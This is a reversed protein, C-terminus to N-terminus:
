APETTLRLPFGQSRAMQMTYHAKSRAIDRSYIGAVASGEIHVKLMLAEAEQLPKRFVRQLIYVVFDMTTVDDNHMIVKYMPPEKQQFRTRHGSEIQKQEM